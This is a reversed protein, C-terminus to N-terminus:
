AEERTATRWFAVRRDMICTEGSGMVLSHSDGDSECGILCFGLQKKLSDRACVCGIEAWNVVARVEDGRM